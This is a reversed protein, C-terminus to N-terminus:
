LKRPRRLRLPSVGPVREILGRRELDLQVVKAYRSVTKKLPFQIPNLRQAVKDVLDDFSIGQAAAPLTRLIATEVPKLKRKELGAGGWRSRTARGPITRQRSNTKKKTKSTGSAM